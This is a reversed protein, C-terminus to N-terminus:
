EPALDCSQERRGDLQIYKDGRVALAKHIASNNSDECYYYGRWDGSSLRYVPGDFGHVLKSLLMMITKGSGWKDNCDINDPTVDFMDVWLEHWTYKGQNIKNTIEIGLNEDWYNDIVWPNDKTINFLNNRNEGIILTTSAANTTVVTREPEPIPLKIKLGDFVVLKLNEEDLYIPIQYTVYLTKNKSLNLKLEECSNIWDESLFLDLDKDNAQLKDSFMFIFLFLPFFIIM